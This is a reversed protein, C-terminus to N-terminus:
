IPLRATPSDLYEPTIIASAISYDTMVHSKEVIGIPIGIPINNTRAIEGNWLRPGRTDFHM